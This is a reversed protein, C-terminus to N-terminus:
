TSGLSRGHVQGALQGSGAWGRTPLQGSRGVAQHRLQGSEDERPTPAAPCATETRPLVPLVRRLLSRGPAPASRAIEAPRTCTEGKKM